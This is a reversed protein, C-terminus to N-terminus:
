MFAPVGPAGCWHSALVAPSYVKFTLLQCSGPL